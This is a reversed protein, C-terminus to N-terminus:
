IFTNQKEDFLFDADKMKQELDSRVIGYSSCLDDLNDYMGDRLKMNIMSYLLEPMMNLNIEMEVVGELRKWM